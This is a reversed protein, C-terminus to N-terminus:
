LINQAEGYPSCGFTVKGWSEWTPTGFNPSKNNWFKPHEYRELILNIKFIHPFYRIVRLFIKGIIYLVGWDYRMQSTNELSKHDLTLNGKSEGKKKIV